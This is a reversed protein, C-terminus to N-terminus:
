FLNSCDIKQPFSNRSIGTLIVGEGVGCVHVYVSSYLISLLNLNKLLCLFIYQRQLYHNIIPLSTICLDLADAAMANFQNTQNIGPQHWFRKVM